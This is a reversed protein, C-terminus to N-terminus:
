LEQSLVQFTTRVCQGSTLVQQQPQERGILRGCAPRPAQSFDLPVAKWQPPPPVCGLQLYVDHASKCIGSAVYWWGWPGLDPPLGPCRHIPYSSNPRLRFTWQAKAVWGTRNRRGTPQLIVFELPIPTEHIALHATMRAAHLVRHGPRKVQPDISFRGEAAFLECTESPVAIFLEVNPPPLVLWSQFQLGGAVGSQLKQLVTYLQLEPDAGTGDFELIWSGDGDRMCSLRQGTAGISRLLARYSLVVEDASAILRHVGQRGRGEKAAIGLEWDHFEEAARRLVQHVLGGPTEPVSCRLTLSRRFPSTM